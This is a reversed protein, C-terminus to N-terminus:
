AQTGAGGAPFSNHRPKGTAPSLAMLCCKGTSESAAASRPKARGHESQLHAPPAATATGGEVPGPVTGPSCRVM